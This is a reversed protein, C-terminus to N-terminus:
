KGHETRYSLKKEVTCEFMHVAIAYMFTRDYLLSGVHKSRKQGDEPLYKLLSFCLM